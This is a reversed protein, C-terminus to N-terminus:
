QNASVHQENARCLNKEFWDHLMIKEYPLSDRNNHAISNHLLYNVDALHEHGENLVAGGSDRWSYKLEIRPWTADRMVRLDQGPHHWWENYGALDVNLVEINLQQGERLCRGGEEKFYRELTATNRQNDAGTGIDTYNEPNDLTVAVEAHAAFTSLAASFAVAMLATHTLCSRGLLCSVGLFNCSLRIRSLYNSHSTSLISSIRM